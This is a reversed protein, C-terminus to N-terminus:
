HPSIAEHKPVKGNSLHKCICKCSPYKRQMQVLTQLRDKTLPKLTADLTGPVTTIDPTVTDTKPHATLDETM